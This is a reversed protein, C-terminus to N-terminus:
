PGRRRPSSTGRRARLAAARLVHAAVAEAPAQDAGHDVVALTKRVAPGGIDGEAQQPLRALDEQRQPAVLDAEVHGCIPRSVLRDNKM